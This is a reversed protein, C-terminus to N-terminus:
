LPTEYLLSSELTIRPASLTLVAGRAVAPVAGSLRIPASFGISGNPLSAIVANREDKLTSAEVYYRRGDVSVVQRGSEVSLVVRAESSLRFTYDM